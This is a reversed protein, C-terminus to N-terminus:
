LCFMLVDLKTVRLLNRHRAGWLMSYLWEVDGQPDKSFSRKLMNQFIAQGTIAKLTPYFLFLGSLVEFLKGWFYTMNDGTSIFRFLPRSVWSVGAPELFSAFGM